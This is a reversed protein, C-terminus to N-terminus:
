FRHDISHQGLEGHCAGDPDYIPCESATHGHERAGKRQRALSCKKLEAPEALAFWKSLIARNILM